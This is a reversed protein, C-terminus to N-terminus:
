RLTPIAFMFLPTFISSSLSLLFFFFCFHGFFVKKIVRENIMVREKGKDRRKDARAAGPVHRLIRGKHRATEHRGVGEGVWTGWGPLTEDIVKDDEDEVLSSKERAFAATVADEDAALSGTESDNDSSSEDSSSTNGAEHSAFSSDYRSKSHARRTTVTAERKKHQLEKLPLATKDIPAALVEPQVVLAAQLSTFSEQEKRQQKGGKLLKTSPLKSPMAWGNKEHETETTQIHMSWGTSTTPGHDLDSDPEEESSTDVKEQVTSAAPTTFKVKKNAKKAEQGFKMRGNRIINDDDDNDSSMNDGQETDQGVAQLEKELERLAENNEERRREESRKMFPLNMLKDEKELKEERLETIEALLKRRVIDGNEDSDDTGADSGDEDGEISENALGAIRRALDAERQAMEKMSMKYDDDWVGRGALKGMNAWKSDRHKGGMRAIARRRNLDEIEQEDLPIEGDMTDELTELEKMQQRQESKRHVRHYAKSKIKKIRKAKAEERSIRERERRLEANKAKRESRTPRDLAENSLALTERPASPGLGSEEMISLITKELENAASKETIPAVANKDVGHMESNQALPFVLHEARRNHKVTETWRDLTENAKEYAASRDVKGQQRRPLPVDLKKSVGPKSATKAEKRMIKVAKKIQPDKVNTIGLDQLTLKTKQGSAVQEDEEDDQEQMNGIFSQLANYKEPDANEEESMEEDTYPSSAHSRTEDSDSDGDYRTSEEGESEEWQDLATALDIAESGLSSLDDNIEAEESDDERTSRDGSMVKTVGLDEEDSEGLAEDSDIESDDDEDVGVRWELGDSDGSSGEDDSGRAARKRPPEEHEVEDEDGEESTTHRRRRKPRPVSEIDLQRVRPGRPGKGNDENAAIAFANLATSRNSTRAKQNRPKKAASERFLPRGHAQRRSM